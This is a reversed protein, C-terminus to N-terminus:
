KIGMSQKIAEAAVSVGIKTATDFAWKGASKLFEVVKSSDKADAAKEAEAVKGMAIFHEADKAEASMAQRLMALESALQTLDISQELRNVIQNFTNDHAQAGPGVAGAQGSISYTDSMHYADGQHITPRLILKDIVADSYKLAGELELRKKKEALAQRQYEVKQQAESELAAKLQEVHEPPRNGSDEIVLEVVIGGAADHISDLRLSCGPHNEELHKILAPLTAIELPNIGDKYFLRIRTKDAFLREFEGTAYITQETKEADWYVSECVVGKISWRARQTEWLCADTLTVQDLKADFLRAAALNAGHLYAGKLYAGSLDAWKLIARSLDAKSLNADIIYASSLDAGSFSAGIFSARFLTAWVLTAERLNAERLNAGSLDAHGLTARSLNAERLNVGSLNAKWLNVGSFDAENLDAGSLDIQMGWNEVRWANWKKVGQKLIELHEPNAM